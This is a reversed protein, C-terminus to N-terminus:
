GKPLFMRVGNIFFNGKNKSSRRTWLTQFLRWKSHHEIYFAKECVNNDKTHLNDTMRSSPCLARFLPFKRRRRDSSNLSLAHPSEMQMINCFPFRRLKAQWALIINFLFTLAFIELAFLELDTIWYCLKSPNRHLHFQVITLCPLHVDATSEM